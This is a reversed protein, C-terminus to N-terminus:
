MLSDEDQQAKEKGKVIIAEGSEPGQLGKPDPMHAVQAHKGSIARIQM